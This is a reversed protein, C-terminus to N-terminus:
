RPYIIYWGLGVAFGSYLLFCSSFHEFLVLNNAVFYGIWTGLCCLFSVITTPNGHLCSILVFVNRCPSSQHSIALNYVCLHFRFITQTCWVDIGMCTCSCPISVLNKSKLSWFFFTKQLEMFEAFNAFFFDEKIKQQM